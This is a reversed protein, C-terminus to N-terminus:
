GLGRSLFPGILNALPLPLKKWLGIKRQYKASLPNVDRLQKGHYARAGYSLPVGEWGWSKKWAAPGTGAKSRGFDFHTMGLSRAHAMLRFYLVENSHSGRAENSAGHWYPMAVHQHYLTLVASLPEGSRSVIAIDANDGFYNM